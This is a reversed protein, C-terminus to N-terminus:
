IDPFAVTDGTRQQWARIRAALDRMRPLMDKSRALNIREFPDQNLDYLEHEGITSCNFKWADTTIVSRVPDRMTAEAQEPTSIQRFADAMPSDPNLVAGASDSRNWEIFVDRDPEDGSVVSAALSEGELGDPAAHDMLDLLTPALDVQSVPTRVRHSRTQGPMRVLLPVRVAEEFMVTKAVIRHSGMMDGHDSTYVVITNEALGCEDLTKLIEGVYTDVLSCLGWYRAILRRWGAETTLDGYGKAGYYYRQLLRTKLPQDETPIDDFNEPLAIEDPDHQADRPGFFPMHPELFNVYLVFPNDRNERLFRSTENALYAPKGYQEPLRTAESRAFREGDAPTFGNEILWHYYSSRADQDRGPSYHGYYGDEIGRWQQFGHQAFIEDGLHWKGFYGTVYEDRPLMEPLCPTDAPLPINNAECANTHPYLGTMISSRSPTCVPQTVYARDFVACQEAFRNLNPTQIRHNGYAAMTDARQEDTFLFLLNPRPM